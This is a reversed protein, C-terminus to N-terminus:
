GKALKELRAAVTAGDPPCGPIREAAGAACQGCGLGDYARGEFSKGIAIRSEGYSQLQRDLAPLFGREEARALGHILAAYCASCAGKERIRAALARVRGTRPPVAAASEKDGLNLIKATSLDASGVGYEEALGIYPVDEVEHGLLRCAYADVLVPDIGALLRDMPVPNGGEEFDLDGCIGDCLIFGPKILCNLLAIPKHLGLQHFRSKEDDPICGKM